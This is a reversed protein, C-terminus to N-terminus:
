LAGREQLIRYVERAIPLHLGPDVIDWHLQRATGSRKAIRDVDVISFDHKRSLEVLALNFELRRRAPFDELFQYNHTPTFPMTTVTNFVLVQAGTDKRLIDIVNGFNSMFGDVSIRGVAAFNERFWSLEEMSEIQNVPEAPILFGHKKHKFCFSEVDPVISLAVVTKPFKEEGQPGFVSFSRDFLRPQFYGSPLDLRTIVPDIWEGPLHRLGQLLLDSRFDVPDERLICCTGQLSREILPACAFLPTPHYSGKAYIGLRTEGQPESWFMIFNRDLFKSERKRTEIKADETGFMNAVVRFVGADKLDREAGDVTENAETTVLALLDGVERQEGEKACVRRLIGTDSSTVRVLFTNKVSLVPGAPDIAEITMNKTAPQQAAWKDLAGPTRTQLQNVQEFSAQHRVVEEVKMDFLDDGYRIPDGEAKHWKLISGARIMWGLDGGYAMVLKLLM